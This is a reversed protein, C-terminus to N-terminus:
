SFRKVLGDHVSPIFLVCSLLGMIGMLATCRAVIKEWKEREEPSAKIDAAKKKATRIIDCVAFWRNHKPGLSFPYVGFGVASSQNKVSYNTSIQM